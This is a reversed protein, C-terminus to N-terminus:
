KGVNFNQENKSSIYIITFLMDRASTQSNESGVVVGLATALRVCCTTGLMNDGGRAGRKECWCWCAEIFASNFVMLTYDM